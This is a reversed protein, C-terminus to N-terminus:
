GLIRAIAEAVGGGSADNADLVDTAAEAVRDPAQGMAFSRGVEAFFAVDNYWDGVAAVQHRELEQRAALSMIGTGKTKGARRMMLAHHGTIKARRSPFTIVMLHDGV